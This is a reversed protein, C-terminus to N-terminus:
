ASVGTPINHAIRARLVTRESVRLRSGIEADSLGRAALEAVDDAHVHRPATTEDPEPECAPDDIDEWAMPGYWGRLMALNRAQEAPRTAPAPRTALQRYVRAVAEATSTRVAQCGGVLADHLAQQAVGSRRSVNPLNYGLVMLAQLRRRTGTANTFGRPIPPTQDLRINLIAAATTRRVSAFRGSLVISITAQNLGAAAAIQDQSWGRATLREIHNRTQTADVRGRTGSARQYASRIRYSNCLKCHCKHRLARSYTGHAPLNM